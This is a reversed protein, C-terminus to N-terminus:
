TKSSFANIFGHSKHSTAVPSALFNAHTPIKNPFSQTAALIYCLTKILKGMIMDKM